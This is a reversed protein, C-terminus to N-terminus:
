TMENVYREAQADWMEAYKGGAAYLDDHTGSEVIKGGDMVLIRDALRASGLRHTVLVATKDGSFEAFQKYVRTEELPDIAATPEDLVIFQHKRYMGRAMAVRQWQGGSIDVGGFDRGLVTNIGKPFTATDTYDVGAAALKAEVNRAVEEANKYKGDVIQRAKGNEDYQSKTEQTMAGGAGYDSIFVNEALTFIYQVYGQFVASTQSFLDSEKTAAPDCGGVLVQGSEAPYLGMLLKVLTTKGSGNEGMLALIEGYNLTFDVKNVATVSNFTKYLKHTSIAPKM